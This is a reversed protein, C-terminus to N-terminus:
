PMRAVVVFPAILTVTPLPPTVLVPKLSAMLAVDVFPLINIM